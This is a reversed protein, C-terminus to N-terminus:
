HSKFERTNATQITKLQNHTKISTVGKKKKLLSLYVCLFFSYHAGYFGMVLQFGNLSCVHTLELKMSYGMLLAKYWVHELSLLLSSVYMHTLVFYIFLVKFFIFRKTSRNMKFYIYTLLTPSQLQPRGSPERKM